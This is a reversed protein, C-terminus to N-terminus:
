RPRRGTARKLLGWGSRLTVFAARRLRRYRPSDTSLWVAVRHAVTRRTSTDRSPASSTTPAVGGELARVRARLRANDQALHAVYAEVDDLVTAPVGRARLAETVEDARALARRTAELYRRGDRQDPELHCGEAWENWANIFVIREEGTRHRRTWAIAAALWQEYLEPTAGTAIFAQDGRRATNDWAPFLGRFLTYSPAPRNLADLAIDAYETLQGRFGEYLGPPRLRGPRVAHPPFEVAADFGLKGPDGWEGYRVFTEAACLYLDGLGASRAAARWIAASRAADPLQGARYVVLLPRGDIRIYRPDRFAQFLSEILRADNEPSYEQRVLVEDEAGDWRRTWHENAWCVCFPFDPRGSALVEDLPRHLLRRGGFWYYHYCFGALGHEAALEAQAERVEPVRLDYFGLDAPLQPQHHGPFWPQARTVNTWETFGRGWWRDNEPIPHFQPLYFAILRVDTM